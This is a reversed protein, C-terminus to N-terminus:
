SYYIIHLLEGPGTQLHLHAYGNVQVRGHGARIGAREEQGPGVDAHLESSRHRHVRVVHVRSVAVPYAHHPSHTGRRKRNPTAFGRLKRRVTTDTAIQQLPGLRTCM